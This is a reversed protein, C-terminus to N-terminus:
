WYKQLTWGLRGKRQWYPVVCWNAVRREMPFPKMFGKLKEEDGSKRKWFRLEKTGWQFHIMLALNHAPKIQQWRKWWIRRSWEWRKPRLLESGVLRIEPDKGQLHEPSDSFQLSAQLYKRRLASFTAHYPRFDALACRKGPLMSCSTRFLKIRLM